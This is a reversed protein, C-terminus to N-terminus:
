QRITRTEKPPASDPFTMAVNLDNVAMGDHRDPLTTEVKQKHGKYTMSPFVNVFTIIGNYVAVELVTSYLTYFFPFSDWSM